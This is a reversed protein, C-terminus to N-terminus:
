RRNWKEMELLLTSNELALCAKKAYFVFISFIM